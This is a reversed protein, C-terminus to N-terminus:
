CEADESSRDNAAPSAGSAASSESHGAGAAMLTANTLTNTVELYSTDEQAPAQDVLNGGHNSDYTPNEFAATTNGQVVPQNSTYSRVVVFIIVGVLCLILIVIAAIMGSSSKKATKNTSAGANPPLPIDDLGNGPTNNKANGGRGDDTNGGGCGAVCVMIATVNAANEAACDSICKAHGTLGDSEGDDGNTASTADDPTTITITGAGTTTATSGGGNEGRDTADTTTFTITGAGTTTATSVGGNEGRDTTTVDTNGGGCGSVCTM